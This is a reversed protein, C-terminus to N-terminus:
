RGGEAPPSLEIRLINGDWADNSPSAPLGGLVDMGNIQISYRDHDVDRSRFMLLATENPNVGPCDFSFDKTSGAFPVGPEIDDFTDPQNGFHQRQSIVVTFNTAM